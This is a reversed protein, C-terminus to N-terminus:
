RKRGGVERGFLTAEVHTSKLLRLSAKFESEACDAATPRITDYRIM